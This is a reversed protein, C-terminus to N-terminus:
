RSRFPTMYRDMLTIRMATVAASGRMAPSAELTARQASRKAPHSAGLVPFAVAMVAGVVPVAELTARLAHFFLAFSLPM